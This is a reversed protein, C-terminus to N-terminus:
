ALCQVNVIFTFWYDCQLLTASFITVFLFDHAESLYDQTTMAHLNESEVSVLAIASLCLKM